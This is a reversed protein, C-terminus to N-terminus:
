IGLAQRQRRLHWPQAAFVDEFMTPTAAHPGDELTGHSVAEKWAAAVRERCDLQWAEHREDDWEDLGTLHERLREVPDGLPWAEYADKPRYRTPDDSTSHAEGRYTFHEILTPGHGARAREAAWRTVAHVALYDNGDVRIGPTFLQRRTTQIFCDIAWKSSAYIPEWPTPYHAALSSTVIIDGVKREIMHPLVDHVNKMVVNCNLNMMRDIADTDADILDGGIYSGANAHFIDLHGVLELLRPLLTKCEEADLLDFVLPIAKEHRTCIEELAKEDRDVFVVTAGEALMMEASALGIGSASGTVAATKGALENAM